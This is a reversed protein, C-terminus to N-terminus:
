DAFGIRQAHEGEIVQRLRDAPQGGRGKQFYAAFAAKHYERLLGQEKAFPFGQHASTNSSPVPHSSSRSVFSIQWLHSM